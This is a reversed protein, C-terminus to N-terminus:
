VRREKDLEKEFLGKVGRDISWIIMFGILQDIVLAKVAGYLGGHFFGVNHAGVLFLLALGDFGFAEGRQLFRTLRFRLRLLLSPLSHPKPPRVNSPPSHRFPVNEKNCCTSSPQCDHVKELSAPSLSMIRTYTTNARSSTATTLSIVPMASSPLTAPANVCSGGGQFCASPVTPSRMPNFCELRSRRM